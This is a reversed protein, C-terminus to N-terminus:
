KARFDVLYFAGGALYGQRFLDHMFVKLLEYPVVDMGKHYALLKEETPTPDADVNGVVVVGDPAGTLNVQQMHNAQRILQRLGYFNAEKLAPTTEWCLLVVDEIPNEFHIM